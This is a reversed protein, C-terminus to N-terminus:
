SEECGARHTTWRSSNATALYTGEDGEILWKIALFLDSPPLRECAVLCLAGVPRGGEYVAVQGPWRPLRYIRGPHLRSPIELYGRELLQGYEEVSV